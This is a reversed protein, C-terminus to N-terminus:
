EEERALMLAVTVGSYCLAHVMAVQARGVRATATAGAVPNGLLDWAVHDAVEPRQRVVASAVALALAGHAGFTEGWAAKPAFIVARQSDAFVEGLASLETRDVATAHASALLLDVAAADYGSLDLVRRMTAAITTAQRDRRTLSPEFGAAYGAIRAWRQAGRRRAHTDSELVVVAAGESPCVGPLSEGFPVGIQSKLLGMDALGHLLAAGLADAGGALVVDAKGLRILDCAYGIAQLGAALGAHLTVNAGKIGLAISVEGAAANSVTAAFLRPSAATPGREVLKLNYEANTLLCGFGTGFSLGIREAEDDRIQLGANEVALSAASLFLRSFRDLRGVHARQDPPIAEVPVETITAGLWPGVRPDTFPQVAHEGRCLRAAVETGSFGLPSVVGLGTVVVSDRVM